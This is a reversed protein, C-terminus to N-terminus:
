VEKPQEALAKDMQRVYEAVEAYTMEDVHHPMFGAYFRSLQPLRKLLARRM